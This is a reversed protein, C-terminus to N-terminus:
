GMEHNYSNIFTPIDLETRVKGEFPERTIAAQSATKRPQKRLSKIQEEPLHGITM